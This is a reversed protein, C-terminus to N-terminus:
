RTITLTTGSVSVAYQDLSATAPGSVVNGQSDFTSGHCNCTYREGAYTWSDFCGQHTCTSSLARYSGGVNAVLTRANVILLWGGAAALGTQITLDITITNGSLSIGAGAGANGTNGGPTKPAPNEDESNTCSTFFAVGLSGCVLGIGAKELFERRSKPLRGIIIETSNEM